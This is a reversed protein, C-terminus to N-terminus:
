CLRTLTLSPSHTVKAGCLTYRHAHATHVYMNAVLMLRMMMLAPSSSYYTISRGCIAIIKTQQDKMDDVKGKERM